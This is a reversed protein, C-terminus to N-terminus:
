NPVYMASTIVSTIVQSLKQTIPQPTDVRHLTSLQWKGNVFGTATLVPRDSGRLRHDSILWQLKHLGFNLHNSRFKLPYNMGSWAGSVSRSKKLLGSVAGSGSWSNKIRETKREAWAGSVHEALFIRTSEPVRTGPLSVSRTCSYYIVQKRCGQIQTNKHNLIRHHAFSSFLHWKTKSHSTYILNFGVLNSKFENVKQPGVIDEFSSAAALSAAALNEPFQRVADSKGARPNESLSKIALSLSSIICGSVFGSLCPHTYCKVTYM